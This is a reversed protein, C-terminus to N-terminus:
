NSSKLFAHHGMLITHSHTDVFFTMNSSGIVFIHPQPVEVIQQTTTGYFNYPLPHGELLDYHQFGDCISQFPTATCGASSVTVLIGM